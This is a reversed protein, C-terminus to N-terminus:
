ASLRRGPLGSLRTGEAWCAARGALDAAASESPVRATGPAAFGGSSIPLRELLAKKLCAKAAPTQGVMSEIRRLASSAIDPAPILEDYLHNGAFDVRRLLFEYSEGFRLPPLEWKGAQAENWPAAGRHNRDCCIEFPGDKEESEDAKGPMRVTLCWNAWKALVDSALANVFPENKDVKTPESWQSVTEALTIPTIVTMVDADKIPVPAGSLEAKNWWVTIQAQGPTHLVARSKQAGERVTENIELPLLEFTGRVGSSMNLPMQNPLKDIVFSNAATAPDPIRQPMVHGYALVLEGPRLDSLRRHPVYDLPPQFEEDAKNGGRDLPISAPRADITVLEVAKPPGGGQPADIKRVEAVLPLIKIQSDATWIMCSNKSPDAKERVFNRYTENPDGACAPLADLVRGSTLM